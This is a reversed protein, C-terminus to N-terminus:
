SITKLTYNTLIHLIDFSITYNRCVSKEILAFSSNMRYTSGLSETLLDAVFIRVAGSVEM